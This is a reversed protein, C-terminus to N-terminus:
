VRDPLSTLGRVKNNLCFFISFNHRPSLKQSRTYRFFFCLLLLFRLCLIVRQLTVNIKKKIDSDPLYYPLYKVNIHKCCSPLSILGADTDVGCLHDKLLHRKAFM